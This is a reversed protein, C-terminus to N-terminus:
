CCHRICLSKFNCYTMLISFCGSFSIVSLNRFLEIFSILMTIDIHRGHKQNLYPLNPDRWEISENFKYISNWQNQNAIINSKLSKISSFLPSIILLSMWVWLDLCFSNLLKVITCLVCYKCQSCVSNCSGWWFGSTIEYVWINFKYKMSDYNEIRSVCLTTHIKKLQTRILWKLKEIYLAWYMSM